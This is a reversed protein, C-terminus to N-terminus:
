SRWDIMWSQILDFEFQIEKVIILIIKKIM